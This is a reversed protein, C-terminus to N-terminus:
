TTPWTSACGHEAQLREFMEVFHRRPADLDREPRPRPVGRRGLMLSDFHGAMRLVDFRPRDEADLALRRLYTDDFDGHTMSMTRGHRLMVELTRAHDDADLLSVEGGILQAHQGTGRAGRLFTMQAEVQTFTHDRDTRV